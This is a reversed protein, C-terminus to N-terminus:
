YLQDYLPVNLGNVDGMERFIDSLCNELPIYICCHRSIPLFCVQWFWVMNMGFTNIILAAEREEKETLTPLALCSFDVIVIGCLVTALTMQCQYQQVIPKLKSRTKISQRDFVQSFAWNNWARGWGVYFDYNWCSKPCPLTKLVFCSITQSKADFELKDLFHKIM